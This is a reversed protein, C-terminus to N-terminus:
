PEILWTQYVVNGERGRYSSLMTPTFKAEQTCREIFGTVMDEFDYYDDLTAQRKKGTLMYLDPSWKGMCKLNLGNGDTLAMIFSDQKKGSIVKFFQQIERGPSGEDDFDIYDFDLHSPLIDGIFKSADMQYDVGECRKDITIISEFRRSYWEALQGEGSYLDIAKNGKTRWIAEIRYALKFPEINHGEGANYLRGGTTVTGKKNQGNIGKLLASLEEDTWIDSIPLGIENDALLQEINWSLDVEGTRNDAYALMRAEHDNELDLDTRQVAVLQKGDTQIVTVENLGIDKAREVTKNGAIIVGNKDILISRGAGYKRLSDDLLSLGRQTGRNANKPDPILNKINMASNYCM